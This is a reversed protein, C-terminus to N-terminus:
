FSQITSLLNRSDIEGPEKAERKLKLSSLQLSIYCKGDIKQVNAACFRKPSATNNVNSIIEECLQVDSKDKLFSFNLKEIKFIERHPIFLPFHKKEFKIKKALFAQNFKVFTEEQSQLQLIVSALNQMKVSNLNFLGLLGGVHIKIWTILGKKMLNIYTGKERHIRLLYKDPNKSFVLM